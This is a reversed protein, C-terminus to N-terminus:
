FRFAPTSVKILTSSTAAGPRMRAGISAKKPLHQPFAVEFSPQARDGSRDSGAESQAELPHPILSPSGHLIIIPLSRLLPFTRSRV